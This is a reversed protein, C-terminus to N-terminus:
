VLLQIEAAQRRSAIRNLTSDLSLMLSLVILGLIWTEWLRSSYIGVLCGVILVLPRLATLPALAFVSTASRLDTSPALRLFLASLVAAAYPLFVWLMRRASAEVDARLLDRHPFVLVVFLLVLIALLSVVQAALLGRLLARVYYPHQRILPCREMARRCGGLMGGLCTLLYLLLLTM